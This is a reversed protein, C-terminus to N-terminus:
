QEPPTGVPVTAEAAHALRIRVIRRNLQDAVYVARQDAAVIQPWAFAIQPEPVRSAPGASDQNGYAGFRLLHNGATDLVHVCFRAVDPFYVRGYDDVDFRVPVCLCVDPTGPTRWSPVNSAGARIWQAGSVRIPNDYGFLVEPGDADAAIRGGRASFKLISGYMLPYWNLRLPELGYKWRALDPPDPLRPSPDIPRLGAALYINGQLDVRVSSLQRIQADILYRHKPRGDPGFVHLANADRADGERLESEAKQCLVYINGQADIAMGRGHVRPSGLQEIREQAEAFPLPNLQADFRRIYAEPYGEFTYFNGDAGFCATPGSGQLDHLPLELPQGTWADYFGRGRVYLRQGRRDLSLDTVLGVSPGATGLRTVEQPDSFREGQDEFRLLGFRCYHSPAGVWVVAPVATDDLAMVPWLHRRRGNIENPTRAEALLRADPFASFKLLRNLPAGALVYVAGSRRHLEVWSPKEVEIAGLYSGGDDFVAIRDNGWDAVYVRGQADTAVSRPDQFREAGSGAEYPKGLFVQPAPDDWGFRYVVHHWKCQEWFTDHSGDFLGTAYLWKEDPSLALSAGSASKEALRTRLIGEAPVGGDTCIVTLRNEGPQAYRGYEQIGVFALRGESTVVPRQRPIEGVGPYFSRTEAQHIFPVRRGDPLGLRRLGRLREEPLDAPYPMITRQYHGGRDFVQCVTTGDGGHINGIVNLVYLQGRADVALGRVSDFVQPNYGIFGDWRAELGLSVRLQFPGGGAPQGADNRQDWWLSQVLADPKLPAPAHPGLLGAALHRVVKGQSDLIAVEVDTPRDVAFEICVGQPGAQAQPTRTFSPRPADAGFLSGAAALFVAVGAAFHWCTQM